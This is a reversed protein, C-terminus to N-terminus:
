ANKYRDMVKRVEAIGKEDPNKYEPEPQARHTPRYTLKNSQAKIKTLLDKKAAPIGHEGLYWNLANKIADDYSLAPNGRRLVETKTYIDQRTRYERTGRVAKETTGVAPVDSSVKDLMADFRDIEANQNQSAMAREYTIRRQREEKLAEALVNFKDALEQGHEDPDLKENLAKMIPDEEPAPAVPRRQQVTEVRQGLLRKFVDPSEAALNQITADSMGAKRGAEVWEDPIENDADATIEKREGGTEKETDDEEVTTDVPPNVVAEDAEDKVSRDLEDRIKRPRGRKPAEEGTAEAKIENFAEAFAKPVEAKETLDVVKEAMISEKRRNQSRQAQGILWEM